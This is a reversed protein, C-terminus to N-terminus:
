TGSNSHLGTQHFRHARVTAQLCELLVIGLEKKTARRVDLPQRLM